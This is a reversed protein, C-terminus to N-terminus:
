SRQKNWEPPPPAGLTPEYGTRYSNDQNYDGFLPLSEDIEVKLERWFKRGLHAFGSCVFLGIFFFVITILTSFETRCSVGGTNGSSSDTCVKWPGRIGIIISTAIASIIQFILGFFYLAAFIVSKSISAKLGILGVIILIFNPIVGFKGNPDWNLGETIGGIAGMLVCAASCIVISVGRESM